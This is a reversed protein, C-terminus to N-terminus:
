NNEEDSGGKIIQLTSQVMLGSRSIYKNATIYDDIIKLDEKDVSLLIKEKM